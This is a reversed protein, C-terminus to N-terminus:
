LMKAAKILLNAEQRTSRSSPRNGMGVRGMFVRRENFQSGLIKELEAALLGANNNAQVDSTFNESVQSYRSFILPTMEPQLQVDLRTATLWFRQLARGGNFYDDMTNLPTDAVIVFHGACRLAPFFDLQLRPMWTGAFYNNLLEVRQWSHMAWKMLKLAIPDLGVAQDPIKSASFQADWQIIDKHVKYAEPITLRIHANKFLLKAMQWKNKWGELWIVQYNDGVANELLQKQKRSLPQISLSRRQTTRMEIVSRLPQEECETLASLSVEIEPKEEASSERRKFVAKFGMASAAIFLTELMAGVAIQSARGDLDYVCWDRTDHAYIIFHKDDIIEFQWPQTNDGSPAWRATNILEEIMTKPKFVEDPAVSQAAVQQSMKYGLQCKLKQLPGKNGWLLKGRGWQCQHADFAQYYPAYYVKGRGTLMKLVETAVVGACLNIGMVTSPGRKNVLDLRTPDILYHRHFAKPTLGVVFNIYQQSQTLGAFNFYDEFSMGQPSFCLYATGMGIPAATVAPIGLEYCRQFVKRRIDLVFFDFGDVFVDVGELFEDINAENIGQSFTKILVEPNINKAQSALVDVKEKALTDMMAGHQRNFNAVEFQDLDAIHFQGIGLRTLSILHAGGVGGMGAIAAKKTRLSLQEWESLWGINRSVAEHYNYDM